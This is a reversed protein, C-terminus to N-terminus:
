ATDLRAKATQSMVIVPGVLEFSRNQEIGTGVKDAVPHALMGDDLHGIREVGPKGDLVDGEDLAGHHAHLRKLMHVVVLKQRRKRAHLVVLEFIRAAEVDLVAIAVREGALTQDLWIGIVLEDHLVRRRLRQGGGFHIRHIAQGVRSRVMRHVLLGAANGGNALNPEAQGAVTSAEAFAREARQREMLSADHLHAAMLRDDGLRLRHDGIRIEFAVDMVNASRRGVITRGGAIRLQPAPRAAALMAKERSRASLKIGVMGIIKGQQALQARKGAHLLHEDTRADTEIESLRGGVTAAREDALQALMMHAPLQADRGLMYGIRNERHHALRRVLNVLAEDFKEILRVACAPQLLEHNRVQHRRVRAAPKVLGDLKGFVHTVHAEIGFLHLIEIRRRRGDRRHHIEGPDVRPRHFTDEDRFRRM